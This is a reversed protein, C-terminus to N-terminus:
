CAGSWQGDWGNDKGAMTRGLGAGPGVDVEGGPSCCRRCRPTALAVERRSNVAHGLGNACRGATAQASDQPTM